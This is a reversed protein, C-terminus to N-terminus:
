PARRRAGPIKDYDADFSVITAGRRRAHAVNLADVFDLRTAGYLRLAELYVRKNPIKVGRMSLIDGVAAAADPRSLGYLRPSTLVNLSEVLVGEIINAQNGPQDLSELYARARPSHDAHDAAVHRVIVNTDIFEQAPM